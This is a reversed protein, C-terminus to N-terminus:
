KGNYFNAKVRALIKKKMEEYLDSQKYLMLFEDKNFALVETEKNAMVQASRPENTILAMEGFVEGSELTAIKNGQRYIDVSGSEILYARDDSADGESMIIDGKSFHITESMMIFYAVEKQTLGEFIYLGSSDIAM